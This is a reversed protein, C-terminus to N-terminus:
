GKSAQHKKNYLERLLNKKEKNSFDKPASYLLMILTTEM